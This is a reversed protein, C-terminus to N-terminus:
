FQEIALLRTSKIVIQLGQGPTARHFVQGKGPKRAANDWGTIVTPFCGSLNDKQPRAYLRGSRHLFRQTMVDVQKPVALILDDTFRSKKMGICFKRLIM